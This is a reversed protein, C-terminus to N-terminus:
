SYYSEKKKINELIEVSITNIIKDSDNTNSLLNVGEFFSAFKLNIEPWTKM